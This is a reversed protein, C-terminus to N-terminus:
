NKFSGCTLMAAGYYPNRIEKAKQLWSKNVMPCYALRVGKGFTSNTAEAYAVLAASLEGFETRAAAIDPAAGLKKAAEVMKEAGQGLGAAASEIAKAQAAISDFRDGALAVQVRLYPDVLASPLDAAAVPLPALMVTAVALVVRISVM